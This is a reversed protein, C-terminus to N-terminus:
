LVWVAEARRPLVKGSRTKCKGLEGDERVQDEEVREKGRREKSKEQGKSETQQRARQTKGQIECTNILDSVEPAQIINLSQKKKKMKERNLGNKIRGDKGRPRAM